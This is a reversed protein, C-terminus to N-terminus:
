PVRKITTAPRSLTIDATSAWLRRVPLFCQHEAWRMKGCDQQERQERRDDEANRLSFRRLAHHTVSEVAERKKCSRGDDQAPHHEEDCALTSKLSNVKRLLIQFGDM